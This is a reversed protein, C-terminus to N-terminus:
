KPFQVPYISNYINFGLIILSGIFDTFFVNEDLFIIALLTSVVTSIYNLSTTKILDVGQLSKILLYTAFFYITSNFIMSSQYGISFSFKGIFITFLLGFLLNSVAIYLCQNEHIMNASNLIKSAVCIFAVSVLSLIGFVVGVFVNGNMEVKNQNAPKRDNFVIMLVGLFCILIGLPYRWHFREKLLFTSLILVVAPNMSIFSNATGVRLNELCAITFILSLFQFSTRIGLWFQSNTSLTRVDDIKINNYRIVGYTILSFFLNRWMVFSFLEFNERYNFQIYKIHFNAVGYCLISITYLILSLNESAVSKHAKKDFSFDENLLGLNNQNHTMKYFYKIYNNKNLFILM